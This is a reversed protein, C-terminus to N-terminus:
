YAMGQGARSAANCACSMMKYMATGKPQGKLKAHASRIYVGTLPLAGEIRRLAGGHEGHSGRPATGAQHRQTQAQARRGTAKALDAPHRARRTRHQATGRLEPPTHTPAETRNRSARPAQNPPPERPERDDDSGCNYQSGTGQHEIDRLRRGQTIVHVRTTRGLAPVGHASDHPARPRTDQHIIKKPTM